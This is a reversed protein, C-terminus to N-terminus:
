EVVKGPNMIGSPDLAHKLLRMAHLGEGHEEHLYRMKGFGVGHEGTCTGGVALARDIMRANVRSAREMQDDDGPDLVFLVHFNGDGVHGVIPATLGEADIDARAQTIAEALRSVPVCVDTAWGRAGPRLALAAYYAEHRAKWLETRDEQLTAWKFDSGGFDSAIEAVSESQERVSDPSGHFEFFVTPKVAYEFGSFKNVADMQVEDLLEARAVPVGTQITLTVADAADALTPFACVASAVAEPIGHLRLAVETVVGLTGESGVFLRTLDYGASSKRARTGTRIVRGDALVVTLGLVNERMAGYRVTTTGSAGTAVMGGLTADAGPDVSFFLGTGKLAAELGLRTLGAEVRCDMDEQNIELVATMRGMALCVGGRVAQVHGELSTGAGFPIIPSGHDACLRVIAVVEDTSQPFVVADPPAADHFSEGGAHQARIAETTAIRDGLISTLAEILAPTTAVMDTNM